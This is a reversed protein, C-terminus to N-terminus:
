PSEENEKEGQLMEAVEVRREIRLSTPVIITFNNRGPSPTRFSNINRASSSTPVPPAIKPFHVSAESGRRQKGGIQKETFQQQHDTTYINAMYVGFLIVVASQLIKHLM